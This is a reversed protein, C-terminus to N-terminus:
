DALEAAIWASIAGAHAQHALDPNMYSALSRVLDVGTGVDVDLPVM